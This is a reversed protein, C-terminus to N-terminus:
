GDFKCDIERKLRNSKECLCIIKIVDLAENASVPPTQEQIIADYLQEFFDIYSGALSPIVKTGHATTLQGYYMAKEQGFNKNLPSENNILSNEQPDQGFKIFSGGSGHIEYKPGPSRCLSSSSLKVCLGNKYGFHLDFYDVAKAEKRQQLLNAYITSPYGFLFLAQDILHVGLDWLIGAGPSDSEKWRFSKVEPRYRDYRNIFLSIDGLDRQQILKKVTLFDSDLRRNHYVSLIKQKNRALDILEQGEIPDLVFPKEVLVHKNHTLAAKAINYHEHNPATIIILDLEKNELCHSIAKKSIIDADPICEKVLSSNDSVVQTVQFQSLANLFPAHFKSGSFGFGVLGTRITKRM